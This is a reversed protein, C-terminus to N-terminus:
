GLCPGPRARPVGASQSPRAPTSRRNAGGAGASGRRRQPCCRGTRGPGAHRAPARLGSISTVRSPHGPPARCRVGVPHQAPSRARPRPRTADAPRRRGRLLRSSPPSGPWTPPTWCAGPRYGPAPQCCPPAPWCSPAPRPEPSSCGARGATNPATAEHPWCGSYPWYPSCCERPLRSRGSRARRRGRPHLRGDRRAGPDAAPVHQPCPRRRPRAARPAPQRQGLRDLGPHVGRRVRGTRALDPARSPPPRGPRGARGRGPRLVARASRGHARAAARRAPPAAALPVPAAPGLAGPRTSGAHDLQGCAPTRRLAM